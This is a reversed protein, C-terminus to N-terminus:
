RHFSVTGWVVTRLVTRQVLSRPSVALAGRAVPEEGDGLRVKVGVGVGVGVAVGELDGL